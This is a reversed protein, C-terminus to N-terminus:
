VKRANIAARILLTHIACVSILVIAMPIAAYDDITCAQWVGIGSVLALAGLLFSFKPSKPSGFVAFIM